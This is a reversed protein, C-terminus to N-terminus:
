AARDIERLMALRRRLPVFSQPGPEPNLLADRRREPPLTRLRLEAEARVWEMRLEHAEEHSIVCRANANATLVGVNRCHQGFEQVNDIAAAVHAAGALMRDLRHREVARFCEAIAGEWLAIV